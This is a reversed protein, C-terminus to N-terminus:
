KHATEIIGYLELKTLLINHCVSDFAKQLDCFIGGVMMKNNLEILVKGTLKLAAIDISSLTRFVL